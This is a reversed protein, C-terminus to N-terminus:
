LRISEHMQMLLQPLTLRILEADTAVCVAPNMSEENVGHEKNDPKIGIVLEVWALSDSIRSLFLIM